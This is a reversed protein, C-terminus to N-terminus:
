PTSRRVRPDTTETDPTPKPSFMAVLAGVPGEKLVARGAVFAVIYANIDAVNASLTPNTHAIFTNAGIAVLAVTLTRYESFDIPKTTM